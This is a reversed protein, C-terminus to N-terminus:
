AVVRGIDWISAHGSVHGLILCMPLIPSGSVHGLLLCTEIHPLGPLGSILCTENHSLALDWYSARRMTPRRGLPPIGHGLDPCGPQPGTAARPARTRVWTPGPCPDRPVAGLPAPLRASPARPLPAWPRPRRLIPCPLLRLILCTEFHSLHGLFFGRGLAESQAVRGPHRTEPCGTATSSSRPKRRM